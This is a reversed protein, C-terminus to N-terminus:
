HPSNAREMSLEESCGLTVSSQASLMLLLLRQPNESGLTGERPLQINM